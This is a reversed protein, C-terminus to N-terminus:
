VGISYEIHVTYNINDWLNEKIETKGNNRKSIVKLKPSM